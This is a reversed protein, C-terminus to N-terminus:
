DSKDMEDISDSEFDSSDYYDAWDGKERRLRAEMIKLMRKTAANRAGEQSPYTATWATDDSDTTCCARWLCPRPFQELKLYTYNIYDPSGVGAIAQACCLLRDQAHNFPLLEPSFVVTVGKSKWFSITDDDPATLSSFLGFVPTDSSFQDHYITVDTISPFKSLAEAINAYADSITLFPHTLDFRQLRGCRIAKLPVPSPISVRLTHLCPFQLVINPPDFYQRSNQVVELVRLTGFCERPFRDPHWLNGFGRICLNRLKPTSIFRGFHEWGSSFVQYNVRLTTLQPFQQEYRLGLRNYGITIDLCNIHNSQLLRQMPIAYFRDYDVQAYVRLLKSKVFADEVRALLDMSCQVTHLSKIEKLVKLNQESNRHRDCYERDENLLTLRSIYRLNIMNDLLIDLAASPILPSDSAVSRGRWIVLHSWLLRVGMQYWRRCVLIIRRRTEIVGRLIDSHCPSPRRLDPTQAYLIEPDINMEHFGPLETSKEFIDLWLETPLSKTLNHQM